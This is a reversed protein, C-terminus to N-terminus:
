WTSACIPCPSILLTPGSSRSCKESVDHAHIHKVHPAHAVATTGAGCGFEMVAMDPRFHARTIALKKQYAAEDAVPSRAYGKAVWNWLLFDGDRSGDERSPYARQRWFDFFVARGTRAARDAKFPIPPPSNRRKPPAQLRM